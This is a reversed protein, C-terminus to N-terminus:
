DAAGLDFAHLPVNSAPIKDRDLTDTHIAITTQVFIREDPHIGAPSLLREADTVVYRMPCYMLRTELTKAFERLKFAAGDVRCAEHFAESEFLAKAEAKEAESMSDVGDLADRFSECINRATQVTMSSEEIITRAEAMEDEIRALAADIKHGFREM